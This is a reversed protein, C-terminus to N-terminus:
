KSKATASAVPKNAQKRKIEIEQQRQQEAKKDKRIAEEVQKRKLEAEEKRKQVSEEFKAHELAYKTADEEKARSAATIQAVTIDTQAKRISDEEKLRNEEQKMQMQMEQAQQEAQQQAQMMQERKKDVEALSRKIQSLNDAAIIEAAEALTAGNQMAPQLLSRLAEIDHAEETSDSLFVAMDSYLFDDTIELFVRTVDNLIYHINKRKGSSWAYKATDLLMTLANRKALNHNWFLPETIHSSQIVSREVNGVLERQQISGTRQKSVGSIEGIMEEIKAMLTIYENLVNSMSLDVAAIQNFASPKGGERGPIDWGSNHVITFDDLVFLHDGDLEIGYFEGLGVPRVKFNSYEIHGIKNSVSAQKREILTPIETDWHLIRMTVTKQPFTISDNDLIYKAETSNYVDTTVKFGLSRAIFAAKEVIHKRDYSQTFTYVADRKSYSGDTDILGALLKLRNERTTYIYDNPIDKNYFVNYKVLEKKIPNKIGAQIFVRAEMVDSSPYVKTMSSNLGLEKAFGEIYSLVEPDMNTVSVKGTSGDGLWLGLFYPDLTVKRNWAKDLNSAHKTYRLKGKYSVEAEEALMEEATELREELKGLYSDKAYYLNKHTSNVRRDTAGSRYYLEYMQDIGSHTSLVKRPKGNPGMVKEGATIDEINKISGDAMIVGTGPAFCEYPNLLNIGLANIYHAWQNVDIGLGKPIQTIDMNLVKGKDRALALELRYWLIIYMYQLPKMLNVLSLSKSNTDSYIVGCYPLKRSSISDVSVHQYEVPGIGLYIDEAVRYGEWVEPIWDWEIKEGPKSMYTEDVIDTNEEGTEPDVTVLFGVKKYSRWTAHYVTILGANEDGFLNRPLKERYVINHYNVEGPKSAAYNGDQYELLRDLDKESMVDFFRDYITAPSMEMRRVFWDGDEIFELDPDKDYSCTMPNVRELVPEGNLMGVYYIEKGAILADKWGKIFENKLNLEEMLYNLTHFAADEAISKYSREIYKQINEPTLPQGSEDTQDGELGMKMSIYQMLLKKKQEQLETVVEDNTQIVKLNFPRKSEEGILLDIKPRIINFDQTKAPFGDEVNFPNTVYKLDEEDYESNYLGYAVQMADKEWGDGYSSDRSIVADVSAHQWEEDKKSMPLKQIPFTSKDVNTM